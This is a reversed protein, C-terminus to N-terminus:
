RSFHSPPPQVCYIHCKSKLYGKRKQHSKVLTDYKSYLEYKIAIFWVNSEAWVNRDINEKREVERISFFKTKPFSKKGRLVLVM